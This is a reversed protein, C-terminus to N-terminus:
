VCLHVLQFLPECLFPLRKAQVQTLYTLQAVVEMTKLM